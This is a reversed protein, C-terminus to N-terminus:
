GGAFVGGSVGGPPNLMVGTAGSVESTYWGAARWTLAPIRERLPPFHPDRCRRESPLRAKEPGIPM